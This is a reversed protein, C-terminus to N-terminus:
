DRKVLTQMANQSAERVRPNNSYKEMVTAITVAGGAAFILPRYEAWECMNFLAGCGNVQVDENDPHNKMAAIVQAIGDSAEFSEANLKTEWLLNAIAGCGARQVFEYEPYRKMGTLIVEVGGIDGVLVKALTPYTFNWLARIGEEQILVHDMHKKLVQVVAMHGGLRCIEREDDDDHHCLDALGTLANEIVNRDDSWLDSILKVCDETTSPREANEQTDGEAEVKTTATEPADESHTKTEEVGPLRAVKAVRRREGTTAKGDGRGRKGHSSSSPVTEAVTEGAARDPSTAPNKQDLNVRRPPVM